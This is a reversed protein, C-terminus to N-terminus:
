EDPETDYGGCKPCKVDFANKSINKKFKKGCERCIMPTSESAENAKGLVAMLEEVESLKLYKAKNDKGMKKM